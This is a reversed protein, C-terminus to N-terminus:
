VMVSIMLGKEIILTNDPKIKNTLEAVETYREKFLEEFM